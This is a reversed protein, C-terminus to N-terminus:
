RDDIIVGPRACFAVRVTRELFGSWARACKPNEPFRLLPLISATFDRQM